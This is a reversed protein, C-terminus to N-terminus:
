ASSPDCSWSSCSLAIVRAPPRSGALKCLESHEEFHECNICSKTEIEVVKVRIRLARASDVETIM